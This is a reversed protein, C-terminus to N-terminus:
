DEVQDFLSPGADEIERRLQLEFARGNLPECSALQEGLIDAAEINTCQLKANRLEVMRLNAGSFILKRLTQKSWTSAWSSSIGQM